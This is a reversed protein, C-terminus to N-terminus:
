RQKMAAGKIARRASPHQQAVTRALKQLEPHV